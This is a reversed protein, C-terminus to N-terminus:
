KDCMPSGSSPRSTQIADKIVVIFPEGQIEQVWITVSGVRCQVFNEVPKFDYHELLQTALDRINAVREGSPEPERGTALLEMTYVLLGGDCRVKIVGVRNDGLYPSLLEWFSKVAFM